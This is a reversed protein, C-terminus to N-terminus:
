MNEQPYTQRMLIERTRAGCTGLSVRPGPACVGPGFPPFSYVFAGPGCVWFPPDLRAGFFKLRHSQMEKTAVYSVMVSIGNGHM